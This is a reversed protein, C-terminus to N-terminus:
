RWMRAPEALMRPHRRITVKRRTASLSFQTGADKGGKALSSNQSRPGPLEGGETEKEWNPRGLVEFPYQCSSFYASSNRTFDCSWGKWCTGGLERGAFKRNEQLGKLMQM